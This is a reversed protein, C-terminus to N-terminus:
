SARRPFIAIFPALVLVILFYSSLYNRSNFWNIWFDSGFFLTLCVVILTAVFISTIGYIYTLYIRKVEQASIKKFWLYQNFNEVRSSLLVTFIFIYFLSIVLPRLFLGLVDGFLNILGTGLLDGWYYIPMLLVLTIPIFVILYRMLVSFLSLISQAITM